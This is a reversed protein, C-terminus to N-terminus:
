ADAKDYIVLAIFKINFLHQHIPLLPHTKQIPKVIEEKDWRHHHHLHLHHHYHHHHHHHPPPPPATFLPTNSINM